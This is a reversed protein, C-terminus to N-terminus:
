SELVVSSVYWGAPTQTSYVKLLSNGDRYDCDAPSFDVSCGRAQLSYGPYPIAFLAAVASPAAVAAAGARDGKSWATIVRSSADDPSPQPSAPRYATTPPPPATTPTASGPTSPVTARTGPATSSAPTTIAASSSTPGSSPPAATSSGGCAAVLVAMLVAVLVAGLFVAALPLAALLVRSPLRRVGADHDGELVRTVGAGLAPGAGARPVNRDGGVSSHSPAIALRYLRGM